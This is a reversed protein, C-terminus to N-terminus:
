NGSKKDPVSNTMAKACADKFDVQKWPLDASWGKQCQERTPTQPTTTTTQALAAGSMLVLAGATLILKKM